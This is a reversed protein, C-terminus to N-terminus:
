SKICFIMKRAKPFRGLNPEIENVLFSLFHLCKYPTAWVSNEGIEISCNHFIIINGNHKGVSVCTTFIGKIGRNLVEIIDLLQWLQEVTTQGLEWRSMDFIKLEDDYYKIKYLGSYAILPWDPKDSLKYAVQCWQKCVRALRIQDLHPLYNLIMTTIEMPLNEGERPPFYGHTPEASDLM